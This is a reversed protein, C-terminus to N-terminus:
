NTISFILRFIIRHISFLNLKININYLNYKIILMFNYIIVSNISIVKEELFFFNSIVKLFIIKVKLRTM